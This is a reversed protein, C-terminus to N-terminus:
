ATHSTRSELPLIFQPSAPGLFYLMGNYCDIVARRQKLTNQGIFGPVDSNPLTPGAFDAWVPVPGPLQKPLGVTHTADHTAEQVGAGIGGLRMPNKRRNIRPTPAGAAAAARRLEEIFDEGQVNTPSGTDILLSSGPKKMRTKVLFAPNIPFARAKDLPATTEEKVVWMPYSSSALATQSPM